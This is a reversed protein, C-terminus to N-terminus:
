VGKKRYDDPNEIAPGLQNLLCMALVKPSDPYYDEGGFLILKINGHSPSEIYLYLVEFGDFKAVEPRISTVGHLGIDISPKNM